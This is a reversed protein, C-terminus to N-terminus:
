TNISLFVISTLLFPPLETFAKTLPARKRQLLAFARFPLKKVRNVTFIFCTM